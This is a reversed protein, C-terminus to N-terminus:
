PLDGVAPFVGAEVYYWTEGRQAYFAVMEQAALPNLIGGACCLNHEIGTFGTPYLIGEYSFGFRDGDRYFYFPRGALLQFNFAEDFGHRQSLSQGDAIVDAILEMEAGLASRAHLVNLYWHSGDVWLRGLLGPGMTEPPISFLVNEGKIVDVGELMGRDTSEVAVSRAYFLEGEAAGIAQVTYYAEPDAVAGYLYPWERERQSRHRELVAETSGGVPQFPEGLVPRAALEFAELSFGEPLEPEIPPPPEATAVPTPSPTLTPPLRPARTPRATRTPTLTATPPQDTVTPAPTLTPVIPPAVCASAVVVLWAGALRTAWGFRSRM